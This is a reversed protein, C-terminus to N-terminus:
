KYTYMYVCIYIYVDMGLCVYTENTWECKWPARHLVRPPCGYVANSLETVHKGKRNKIYKNKTEKDQSYKYSTFIYLSTEVAGQM